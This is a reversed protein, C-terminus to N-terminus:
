CRPWSAGSSPLCDPVAASRWVRWFRRCSGRWSRTSSPRRPGVVATAMRSREPADVPRHLHAPWGALVVARERLRSGQGAEAGASLQNEPLPSLPVMRDKHGKAQRIHLTMRESDLDRIQLRVGESLRLGAAYITTLVGRHKLNSVADLLRRVEDM